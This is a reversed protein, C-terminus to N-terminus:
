WFKALFHFIVYILGLACSGVFLFWLVMFGGMAGAVKVATSVKPTEEKKISMFRAYERLEQKSAENGRSAQALLQHRRHPSMYM